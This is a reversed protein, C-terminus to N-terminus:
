YEKVHRHTSCIYMYVTCQVHLLEAIRVQLVAFPTENVRVCPMESTQLGQICYGQVRKVAKVGLEVSVSAWSARASDCSAGSVLRMIFTSAVSQLSLM